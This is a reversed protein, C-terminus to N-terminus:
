PQCVLQCTILTGVAIRVAVVGKRCGRLHGILSQQIDVIEWDIQISGTSDVKWGYQEYLM